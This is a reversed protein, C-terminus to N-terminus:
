LDMNQSLYGISINSPKIINGSDKSLEGTIIKFLTSKGAGNIGVLAVKDNENLQFNVNTLIEDIGFSKKINDCALVM